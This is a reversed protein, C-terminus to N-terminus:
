LNPLGCSTPIGAYVPLIGRGNELKEYYLPEKQVVYQVGLPAIALSHFRARILAYDFDKRLVLINFSIHAYCISLIYMHLPTPLIKVLVLVFIHM